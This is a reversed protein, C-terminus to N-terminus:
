AFLTRFTIALASPIGKHSMDNSSMLSIYLEGFFSSQRPPSLLLAIEDVAQCSSRYQNVCVHVLVSLCYVVCYVTVGCMSVSGVRHGLGM